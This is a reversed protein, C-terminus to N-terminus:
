DNPSDVLTIIKRNAISIMKSCSTKPMEYEFNRDFLLEQDLCATVSELEYTLSKWM